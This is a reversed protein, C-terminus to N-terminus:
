LTFALAKVQLLRAAAGRDKDRFATRWATSMETLFSHLDHGIGAPRSAKDYHLKRRLKKTSKHLKSHGLKNVMLKAVGVPDANGQPLHAHTHANTHKTHTTVCVSHQGVMYSPMSCLKKLAPLLTNIVRENFQNREGDAASTAGADPLLDSTLSGRKSAIQVKQM